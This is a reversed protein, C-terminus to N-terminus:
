MWLLATARSVACAGSQVSCLRRCVFCQWGVPESPRLLGLRWRRPRRRRPARRSPAGEECLPARLGSGRPRCLRRRGRPLCPRRAQRTADEAAGAASAAPSMEYSLVTSPLTHLSGPAEPSVLRQITRGLPRGERGLGPGGREAGRSRRVSGMVPSRREKGPGLTCAMRGDPAFPRRRPAPRSTGGPSGSGAEPEDSPLRGRGRRVGPGASERSSGQAGLGPPCVSAGPGRPEARAPGLAPNGGQQWSGAARCPALGRKDMGVADRHIPVLVTCVAATFGSSVFAPWMAGSMSSAGVSGRSVRCSFCCQARSPVPLAAAWCCREPQIQM